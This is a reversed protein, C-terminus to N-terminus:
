EVRRYAVLRYPEARGRKPGDAADGLSAVRIWGGGFVSRLTGADIEPQVCAATIQSRVGAPIEGILDTARPYVEGSVRRLAFYASPHCAVRDADRFVESAFVEVARHDRLRWEWACLGLRAPLGVLCAAGALGLAARRGAAPLAPMAHALALAAPFFVLWSYYTPFKGLLALAPGVLLAAILAALSYRRGPSGRPLLALALVLGALVFLLSVDRYGDLRLRFHPSLIGDQYHRSCAVFAEWGGTSQYFAVLCLTGLGFGAYAAVVRGVWPRGGMWLLIAGMVAVYPGLFLGCWPAIAGLLFMLLAPKWGAMAPQFGARWGVAAYAAAWWLMALADARGSRYSFVAGAGCLLLALLLMGAGSSGVHGRRRAVWWVWGAAMAALLIPLARVQWLGVGFAKLWVGLGYGYAPVLGPWHVGEPVLTWATTRFGEGMAFHVAPDAFYVEDHWATPSRTATFLNVGLAAIWLLLALFSERRNPMEFAAFDRAM